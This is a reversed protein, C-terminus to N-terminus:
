EVFVHFVGVVLLEKGCVVVMGCEPLGFVRSKDFRAGISAEFRVSEDM